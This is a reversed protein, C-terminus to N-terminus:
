DYESYFLQGSVGLDALGPDASDERTDLVLIYGEPREAEVWRLLLPFNVVCKVGSRLMNGDVDLLDFYWFGERSNFQFNFQYTVGSLDVSFFFAGLEGANEIPIQYEAM